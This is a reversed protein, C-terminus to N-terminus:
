LEAHGREHLRAKVRSGKRLEVLAEPARRAFGMTFRPVLRDQVHFLLEVFHTLGHMAEGITLKGLQKKLDQWNLALIRM